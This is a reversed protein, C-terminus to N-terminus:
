RSHTPGKPTISIKGLSRAPLRVSATRFNYPWRVGSIGDARVRSIEIPLVHFLYCGVHPPESKVASPGPFKLRMVGVGACRPTKSRAAVVRTGPCPASKLVQEPIRGRGIKGCIPEM